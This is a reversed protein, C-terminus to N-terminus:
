EAKLSELLLEWLVAKKNAPNFPIGLSLLHEVLEAKTLDEDIFISKNEGQPEFIFLPILPTKDVEMLPEKDVVITKEVDQSELPAIRGEKILLQLNEPFDMETVIDGSQYVKKGKGSLWRQKVVYKM